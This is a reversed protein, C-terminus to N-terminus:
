SDQPRSVTEGLWAEAEALDRFVQTAVIHEETLVEFMRSMGFLAAQDAIVACARLRVMTSLRGVRGVVKRLQDAEPLSTM